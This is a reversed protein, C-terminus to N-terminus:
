VFKSFSSSLRVDILIVYKSSNSGAISVYVFAFVLNGAFGGSIM